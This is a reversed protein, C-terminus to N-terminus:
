GLLDQLKKEAENDVELEDEAIPEALPVLKINRHIGFGTGGPILHGM